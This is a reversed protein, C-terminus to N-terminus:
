LVAVALVDAAVLGFAVALLAAAPRNWGATLRARRREADAAEAWFDVPEDRRGAAVFATMAAAADAWDDRLAPAVASPRGGARPRRPRAPAAPRHPKQAPAAIDVVAM